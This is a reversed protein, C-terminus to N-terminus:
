FGGTYRHRHRGVIHPLADGVALSKGIIIFPQLFNLASSTFWFM